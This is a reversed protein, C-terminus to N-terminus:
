YDIWWSGIEEYGVLPRFGTGPWLGKRPWCFRLLNEEELYPTKGANTPSHINCNYYQASAGVLSYTMLTLKCSPKIGPYLVVSAIYMRQCICSFTYQKDIIHQINYQSPLQIRLIMVLFVSPFYNRRTHLRSFLFLNKILFNNIQFSLVM